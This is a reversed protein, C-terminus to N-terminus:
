NRVGYSKAAFGSAKGKVLTANIWAIKGSSLRRIHGRRLHSRMTRGSSGASNRRNEDGPVTLVHYDFFPKKNARSRAKNLKQPAPYKEAEVNSCGLVLCLQLYANLEFQADAMQSEVFALEGGPYERSIREILEPGLGGWFLKLAKRKTLQEPTLGLKKRVADPTYMGESARVEQEYAVFAFLSPPVWQSVVDGYFIPVIWVGEEQPAEGNFSMPYPPVGENSDFALVMRKSSQANTGDDKMEAPESAAYEILTVPYPPRLLLPMFDPMDQMDLLRAMDPLHFHQAREMMKVLWKLNAYWKPPCTKEMAEIQEAFHVSYNGPRFTM